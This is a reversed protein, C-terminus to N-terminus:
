RGKIAHVIARRAHQSLTRRPSVHPGISISQYADTLDHFAFTDAQKAILFQHFPLAWVQCDMAEAFYVAFPFVLTPEFREDHQWPTPTFDDGGVFGGARVKPWVRLLDSTIGRLTHDGDIYVFDLGGDDLAGIVEATTGRLEVRKAAAFATRRMAEARADEFEPASVNLPKNWQALPRWADLLYYREISGCQGLLTEAFAGRWVGIELVHRPRWRDLLTAWLETRDHAEAIAAELAATNGDSM